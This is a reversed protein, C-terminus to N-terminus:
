ADVRPNQQPALPEPPVAPASVGGGYAPRTLLYQELIVKILAVVPVVLLMGLLGLLGAGLLLALLVTLPHLNTSRAMIVPGFVHAEMLNAGFFVAVAGLAIWPGVTLGLLVAPIAGIIPGLYPILNLVAALFSISTALPVGLLILGIWIFVGVFFSILLRGRIYGGVATDAKSVIDSYLPRWRLPVYRKFSATIRTFDYLFYASAVLILFMQVTGSLITLVGTYIISGSYNVLNQLTNRFGLAAEALFGTITERTAGVISDVLGPQPEDAGFRELLGLQLNDLWGISDEAYLVLTDVASPILRIFEGSEVIVRGILVSGFIFSMVLLLYVLVVALPRGLRLRQLGAVLPNLVYAIIFGILGVQLAFAYSGRLRWLLWILLIIVVIYVVARVWVNRWVIEFATAEREM